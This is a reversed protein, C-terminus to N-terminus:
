KAAIDPLFSALFSSGLFSTLTSFAGAGLLTIGLKEGWRGKKEFLRYAQVGLLGCLGASVSKIMVPYKDLVNLCFGKNHVRRLVLGPIKTPEEKGKTFSDEVYQKIGMDFSTLGLFLAVFYKNLYKKM